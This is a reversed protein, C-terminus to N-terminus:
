ASPTILGRQRPQRDFFLNLPRKGGPAMNAQEHSHMDKEYLPQKEQSIQVWLRPSWSFLEVVATTHGFENQRIHSRDRRTEGTSGNDHWRSNTRGQSKKMDSQGPESTKGATVATLRSVLENPLTPGEM